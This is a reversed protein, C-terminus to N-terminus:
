AHLPPVPPGSSAQLLERLMRLNARGAREVAHLSPDHRRAHASPAQRLATADMVTLLVPTSDAAGGRPPSSAGSDRALFGIVEQAHAARDDAPGVRIDLGRDLLAMEVDKASDTFLHLHLHSHVTASGNLVAGVLHPEFAALLQMWEMALTRLNQLLQRHAAGDHLRLHSRLAAELQEQDPLAGGARVSTGLIAAAAKHRAPGCDMGDEAILRAALAAIELQLEERGGVNKVAQKRARLVQALGANTAPRWTAALLGAAGERWASDVWDGHRGHLGRTAFGFVLLIPAKSGM